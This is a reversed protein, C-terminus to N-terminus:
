CKGRPKGEKGEKDDDHSCRDRNKYKINNRAVNAVNGNYVQMRFQLNHRTNFTNYMIFSHIAWTVFLIFCLTNTMFKSLGLQSLFAVFIILCLYFLTRRIFDNKFFMREIQDKNIFSLRNRTQLRHKSKEEVRNVMDLLEQKKSNEGSLTSNFDSLLNSQTELSTIHYNKAFKFLWPITNDVVYGQVELGSQYEKSFFHDIMSVYKYPNTYVKVKEVDSLELGVPVADGVVDSKLTRAFLKAIIKADGTVGDTDPLNRCKEIIDNMATNNIIYGIANGEDDGGDTYLITFSDGIVNVNVDTM